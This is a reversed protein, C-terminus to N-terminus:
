GAGSPFQLFLAFRDDTVLLMHCAIWGAPGSERGATIM